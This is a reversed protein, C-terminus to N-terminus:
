CPSLDYGVFASDVVTVYVTEFTENSTASVGVQKLSSSLLATRGSDSQDVDDILMSLVVWMPSDTGGEIM